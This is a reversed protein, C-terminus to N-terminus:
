GRGGGLSLMAKPGRVLWGKREGLRLGASEGVGLGSGGGCGLAHSESGVMRQIGRGEWGQAQGLTWGAWVM